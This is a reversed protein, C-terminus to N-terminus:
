LRLAVGLGGRWAALDFGQGGPSQIRRAGFVEADIGKIVTNGRLSPQLIGLDFRVGARVEIAPRAGRIATLQEGGPGVREAFQVMALGLGVFSDLPAEPADFTYEALLTVPFMEFRQGEDESAADLRRYAFDVDLAIPGFLDVVVGAGGMLAGQQYVSGIAADAWREANARVVLLTDAQAVSLTALLTWLM